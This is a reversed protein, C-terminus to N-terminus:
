LFPDERGPRPKAPAPKPTSLETKCAGPDSRDSALHLGPIESPHAHLRQVIWDHLRALDRTSGEACLDRALADLLEGAWSPDEYRDSALWGDLRPSLVDMRSWGGGLERWVYHLQRLPDPHEDLFGAFESQTLPSFVRTFNDRYAETAYQYALYALLPRRQPSAQWMQPLQDYLERSANCYRTYGALAHTTARFAADDGESAHWFALATQIPSTGLLNVMLTRTVLPDKRALFADFVRRRLVEDGRMRRYVPWHTTACGTADDDMPKRVGVVLAFLEARASDGDGTASTPKAAATWQDLVRLTYAVDDFGALAHVSGDDDSSEALMTAVRLRDGDSLSGDSAALWASLAAEARGFDHGPPLRVVVDAHNRRTQAMYAAEDLIRARLQADLKADKGATASAFALLQSLVRARAVDVAADDPGGHSGDKMAGYAFDLLWEAYAARDGDAIPGPGSQAFRASLMKGYARGVAFTIRDVEEIQWWNTSVLVMRLAGSDPDFTFHPYEDVASYDWEVQRLKPAMWAFLTPHREHLTVLKHAVDDINAESLEELREQWRPVLAADFRFVVPHGVLATIQADAKKVLPSDAAFNGHSRESEILIRGDLRTTAVSGGCGALIGLAACSLISLGRDRKM